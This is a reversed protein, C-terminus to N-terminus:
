GIRVPREDNTRHFPQGGVPPKDTEGGSTRICVVRHVFEAIDIEDDGHIWIIELRDHCVTPPDGPRESPHQDRECAFVDALRPKENAQVARRQQM